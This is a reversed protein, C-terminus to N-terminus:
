SSERKRDIELSRTPTNASYSIKAKSTTDEEWATLVAEVEAAEVEVAEVEVVEMALPTVEEMGLLPTLETPGQPM